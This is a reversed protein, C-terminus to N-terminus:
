ELEATLTSGPKSVINGLQLVKYGILNAGKVEEISMNEKVKKEDDVDLVMFKLLQNEEFFYQVPVSKVFKPNPQNLQFETHGIYSWVNTHSNLLFVKVM